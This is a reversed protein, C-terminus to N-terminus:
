LNTMRRFYELRRVAGILGGGDVSEIGVEPDSSLFQM